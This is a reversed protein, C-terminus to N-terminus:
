RQELIGIAVKDQQIIRRRKKKSWSAAYWRLVSGLLRSKSSSCPAHDIELSYLASLLVQWLLLICDGRARVAHSQLVFEKRILKKLSFGGSTFQIRSSCIFGCFLQALYASTSIRVAGVSGQVLPAPKLMIRVAQTQPPYSRAFSVSGTVPPPLDVTPQPQPPNTHCIWRLRSCCGSVRVRMRSWLRM